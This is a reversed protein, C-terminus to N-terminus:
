IHTKPWKIEEECKNETCGVFINEILSLLFTDVIKIVLQKM